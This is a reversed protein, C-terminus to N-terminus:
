TTPDVPEGDKKVGPPVSSESEPIVPEATQETEDSATATSAHDPAFIRAPPDIYPGVKEMLGSTAHEVKGVVIDLDASLRKVARQAQPTREFWSRIQDAWSDITEM